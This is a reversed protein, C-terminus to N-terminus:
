DLLEAQALWAGELEHREAELVRLRAALETVLLHDTAANALEVHLKEQSARIRDLARDIRGLEKRVERAARGGAPNTKDAATAAGGGAPNTKDVATAARAGAPNIKGAATASGNRATGRKAGVQSSLRLYEDVGGPLHRLGRDVLAYISDCVRELFYRDHSVVVLAGPWTDLLDELVALTEVDLDNTPEDLLLVNPGGLLLRLVQLRRREGGSLDGVRADLRGGTFGFGELLSTASMTRGKGVDIDRRIAEVSELVRESGDLEALEQSLRASVVTRGRLLEGSMPEITGALLSLLTTKGAGNPGLLGVRDGPGLQWTVDSLLINPPDGVAMTVDTLELVQNGLRATALKQLELRDRPPPEDDILAAAADLRFKPKSTRAPAGRRLWALEKRLLSRRRDDSVAERREREARALVFAAYGGEYRHVRGAAVEWTEECVADLFWRDHTVVVLGGNRSALHGALWTIAELDLHNTPEDLLLVDPDDILLAALAIRRREGGSTTGVITELGDPLAQAARGGLLGTLVSRIRPDGAWAHEELGGLIVEAATAAADLSDAQSLRGIRTGSVGFVRGDNPPVDGALAGLLTTKGSGNRGVVGVRSGELVGVTIDDLVTRAGFHVTVSELQVLTAAM